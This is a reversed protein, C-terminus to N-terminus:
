MMFVIPITATAAKAAHAAQPTREFIVALRRRVFDSAMKPMESLHTEAFRVDLELNRGEIFGEEKLGKVVAAFDDRRVERGGPDLYGVLSGASQARGARSLAAAAGFGAIVERRRM